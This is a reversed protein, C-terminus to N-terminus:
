DFFAAYLRYSLVQEAYDQIKLSNPRTTHGGAEECIKVTIWCLWQNSIRADLPSSGIVFNPHHTKVRNPHKCQRANEGRWCVVMRHYVPIRLFRDWVSNPQPHTKSGSIIQSPISIEQIPRHKPHTPIFDWLLFTKWTCGMCEVVMQHDTHWLLPM